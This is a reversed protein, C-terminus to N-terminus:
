VLFSNKLADRLVSDMSAPVVLFEESAILVECSEARLADELSEKGCDKGDIIINERSLIANTNTSPRPYFLQKDNFWAYHAGRDRGVEGGFGNSNSSGNSDTNYNSNMPWISGAVGWEEADTKSSTALHGNSPNIVENQLVNQLTQFFELANNNDNGYTGELLLDPTLRETQIQKPKLNPVGRYLFHYDSAIVAHLYRRDCHDDIWQVAQAINMTNIKNNNFVPIALNTKTNKNTVAASATAAALTSSTLLLLNRRSSSQSSSAEEQQNNTM